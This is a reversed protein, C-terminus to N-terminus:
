IDILNVSVSCVGPIYQGRSIISPMFDEESVATSNSDLYKIHLYLYHSSIQIITEKVVTEWGRVDCM